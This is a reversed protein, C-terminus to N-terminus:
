SSSDKRDLGVQYGKLLLAPMWWRVPQYVLLDTAVMCLMRLRSDFLGWGGL